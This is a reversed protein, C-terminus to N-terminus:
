VVYYDGRYYCGEIDQPQDDYIKEIEIGINGIKQM